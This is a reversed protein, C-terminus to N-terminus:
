HATLMGSPMTRAAGRARTASPLEGFHQRYDAAFRSLHWFGWRAAVDGVTLDSHALLEGRVRNLRMVRLYTVPSLHLIEEFAYQLARRSACTAQCLDPVTIAEDAHAHMYDRAAYLIRRRAAASPRVSAEHRDGAVGDLMAESLSLALMRQAAAQQLLAPQLRALALASDVLQKMGAQVAASTALVCPDRLPQAAQEGGRLQTALASLHATDISIGIVDMGAGAILDFESGSSVAIMRDRELAHGCFWGAEAVPHMLGVTLTGTRPMGCQFVSRSATEVFVQVPGVRLDEVHGSFRGASIQEYKQDWASLGAAHEDADRTDLTTYCVDQM